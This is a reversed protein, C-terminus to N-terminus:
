STQALAVLTQGFALGGDNVPIPGPGCLDFGTLEAMVMEQLLTNQFCGGSLAITDAGSNEAAIQGANAFALAIGAHCRRAIIDIGIGREFEDVLSAFMPSPDVVKGDWGLEYAGSTEPAARAMAELRMAAEGEFSQSRPVIGLCAAIADLLRGASSSQPSNVGSAAISRMQEVPLGSFLRSAVGGLRAADLRVVANRWPEKQSRDGGPLPAYELHGARKASVYNGVLIEGGWITEDTGLGLGDLIIGVATGGNWGAAGLAAAMHAHHHQAEVLKLGDRLALDRGFKSARYGPHLDVAVVEPQHEMLESLDRNAKLFEEYALVTDLDGLHHSLMAQGNKTLCIASKLEGGCALVQRDDGCDPLSITGPTVGRARRIVTPATPTAKVVSDDLRRAIKRDHMLFSDAIHSLKECAEENDIVQPENSVNGSTMILPRGVAEVLLHHLPTYPLMWGLQNMGPAIEEPLGHGDNDILVIPAAPGNLLNLEAETPRAHSTIMDLSGMLAFPKFPRKKRSRLVQVAQANGADCALHFGGLGKIAIIEGAMLRDAAAIIPRDSQPEIWVCPGCEPCAIPQAHFRRDAPDEYERRCDLCMEFQAMTTQARDYPLDQLITFRPGCNACNTFPYGARRGLSSVETRCDPCTAADPACGTDAGKPGSKLIRFLGDHEFEVPDVEVAHIDALPPPSSKLVRVLDEVSDGSVRIEVGEGDNRVTGALGFEVAKRWVFPRFGVGQVSGRIRIKLGKAMGRRQRNVRVSSVGFIFARFILQTEAVPRFKEHKVFLNGVTTARVDTLNRFLRVFGVNNGEEVFKWKGGLACRLERNGRFEKGTLRM